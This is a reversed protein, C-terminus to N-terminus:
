SSVIFQGKMVSTVMMILLRMAGRAELDFHRANDLFVLNLTYGRGTNISAIDFLVKSGQDFVIRQRNNEVTRPRMWQPISELMDKFLARLTERSQGNMGVVMVNQYPHFLAHWLCMALGLTTRGTARDEGLRMPKKNLYQAVMDLQNPNLTLIEGQVKVYNNIFYVPDDRCAILEQIMEEKYEHYQKDDNM